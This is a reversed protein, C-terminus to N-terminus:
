LVETVMIASKKIWLNAGEYFKPATVSVEIDYKDIQLVQGTIVSAGQDDFDCALYFKVESNDNKAQRLRQEYPSHQGAPRTSRRADRPKPPATLQKGKAEPNANPPSPLLHSAGATAPAERALEGFGPIM